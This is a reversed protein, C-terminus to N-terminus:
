RTASFSFLISSKNCGHQPSNTVRATGFIATAKMGGSTMELETATLNVEVKATTNLNDCTFYTSDSGDSYYGGSIPYGSYTSPINSNSFNVSGSYISMSVPYQDCVDSNSTWGTCTGPGDLAVSWSGDYDFYTSQPQQLTEITSNASDLNYQSSSLDNELSSMTAELDSITSNKNGNDGVLSDIRGNLKALESNLSSNNSKAVILLIATVLYIVSIASYILIKKTPRKNRQSSQNPLQFSHPPDFLKVETDETPNTFTPTREISFHTLNEIAWMVEGISPKDSDDDALTTLLIKRCSANIPLVSLYKTAQNLLELRNVVNPNRIGGLVFTFLLVIAQVDEAATPPTHEIQGNSIWKNPSITSNSNLHREIIEYSPAIEIGEEGVFISEPRLNGHFFNSAHLEQILDIFKIFLSQAIPIDLKGVTSIFEEISQGSPAQHAVWSPHNSPDRDIIPLSHHVALASLTELFDSDLSIPTASTNVHPAVWLIVPVGGTSTCRHLAMDPSLQSNTDLSFSGYQHNHEDQSEM